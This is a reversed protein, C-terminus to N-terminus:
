KLKLQVRFPISQRPQKNTNTTFIISLFWYLRCMQLGSDCAYLSVNEELTVGFIEKTTDVDFIKM